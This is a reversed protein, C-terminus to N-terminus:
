ELEPCGFHYCSFYRTNNDESLLSAFGGFNLKFTYKENNIILKGTQECGSWPTDNNKYIAHHNTPTAHLFFKKVTNPHVKSYMRCNPKYSSNDHTIKLIKEVEILKKQKKNSCGKFHHYCGIIKDELVIFNGFNYQFTIIRHNYKIKGKVECPTKEFEKDLTKQTIIQGNKILSMIERETIKLDQCIPQKISTQSYKLITYKNNECATLFFIFTLVFIYYKM